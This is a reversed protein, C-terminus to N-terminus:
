DAESQGTASLIVYLHELKTMDVSPEINARQFVEYDNQTVQGIRGVVLGGPFVGGLGSTIVMQGPLLREQQPVHELLLAGDSRGRALGTARSDPDQIRVSASSNVDTLLLVKATTANARVVRGVLGKWTVVPMDKRVGDNAGRDVTISQLLPSVDSATVRVPLLEGPQTQEKLSLLRRLAENELELEKLRVFESQLRDIESRYYENQEGIESVRRLTSWFAQMGGFAGSVGLQVPAFLQTGLSEVRHVPEPTFLLVAAVAIIALGPRWPPSPRKTLM